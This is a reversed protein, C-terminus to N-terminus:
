PWPTGARAAEYAARTAPRDDFVAPELSEAAEFEAV